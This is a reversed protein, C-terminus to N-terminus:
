EDKVVKELTLVYEAEMHGRKWGAGKLVPLAVWKANRTSYARVFVTYQENHAPDIGRVKYVMNIM